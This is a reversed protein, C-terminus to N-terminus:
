RAISSNDRGNRELELQSTVVGTVGPVNRAITRARYIADTSWVYGSLQAVGNDVRVDVHRFYYKPDANLDSYVANALVEDTVGLEARVSAAADARAQEPSKPPVSVCAVLASVSAVLIAYAGGKREFRVGAEM